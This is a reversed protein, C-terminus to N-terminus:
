VHALTLLSSFNDTTQIIIFNLLFVVLLDNKRDIEIYDTFYTFQINTAMRTNGHQETIDKETTNM